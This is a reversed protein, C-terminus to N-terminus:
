PCSETVLDTRRPSEAGLLLTLSRGSTDFATTALPNEGSPPAPAKVLEGTINAHYVMSHIAISPRNDASAGVALRNWGLWDVERIGASDKQDVVVPTSFTGTTDLAAYSVDTRDRTVGGDNFRFEHRWTLHVRDDAGVAVAMSRDGPSTLGSAGPVRKVVWAGGSKWALAPYLGRGANFALVMGRSPSYTAYAWGGHWFDNPAVDASPLREHTWTSGSRRSVVSAVAGEIATFVMPEGAADVALSAALKRPLPVEAIAPLTLREVSWGTSKRQAVFISRKSSDQQDVVQYIATPRGCSDVVIQGDILNVGNAGPAIEDIREVAFTGKGHVYELRAGLGPLVTSLLAHAEGARDITLSQWDSSASPQVSSPAAARAYNTCTVTPAPTLSCAPGADAAADRSSADGVSADTGPEVTADPQPTGADAVAAGESSGCGAVSGLTLALFLGLPSLTRRYHLM